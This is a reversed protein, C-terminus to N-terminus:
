PIGCPGVTCNDRNLLPSLKIENLKQLIYFLHYFKDIGIIKFKEFLFKKVTVVYCSGETRAPGGWKPLSSRSPCPSEGLSGDCGREM